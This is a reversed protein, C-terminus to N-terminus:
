VSNSGLDRAHSAHKVPWLAIYYYYYSYYYLLRYSMGNSMNEVVHNGVVEIFTNLTFRLHWSLSQPVQVVSYM